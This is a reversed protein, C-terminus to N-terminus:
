KQEKVQKIARLLVEDEPTEKDDIIYIDPTIGGEEISEKAPTLWHAITIKLQTGDDLDILEQVSGKGFTKSGVLTGIDYFSLAAALIESASASNENIVVVLSLKDNFSKYGRSNISRYEDKDGEYEYLVAKDSDLFYSAMIVAVDLIGGPNDRVDIILDTLGTQVFSRLASRFDTATKKSFGSVEIVYVDDIIGANISPIIINDRVVSIELSEENGERVVTLVVTTGIPGRIKMAASTSDINGVEEGDIHTIVDNPLIGAKEAPSGKLPRVVVLKEERITIEM